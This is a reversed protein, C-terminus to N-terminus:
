RTALASAVTNKFEDAQIPKAVFGDFDYERIDSDQVYGSLALVPLNPHFERLKTLLTYGDMDPMKIDTIVLDPKTELAEAGDKAVVVDYEALIDCLLRRVSEEDDVVLVRRDSSSSLQEDIRAKATDMDTGTEKALLSLARDVRKQLQSVADQTILLEKQYERMRETDDNMKGALIEVVNRLIKAQADADTKLAMDLALKKFVLVNSAQTAKVASTRPQKTVISLEGITAVPQIRAIESDDPAHVVAEGSLLIFMEDGPTNAVCVVEGEELCRAGEPDANSGARRLAFDQPDGPHAQERTRKVLFRSRLAGADPESLLRAGFPRRPATM